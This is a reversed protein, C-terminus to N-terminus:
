PSSPADRAGCVKLGLENSARALESLKRQEDVAAQFFAEPDGALAPELLANAYDVTGSELKDLYEEWRREESRPPELQSLQDILVEGEAATAEWFPASAEIEEPTPGEPSFSPAEATALIRETADTCLADAETALESKSLTETPLSTTADVTPETEDDGGCGNLLALAAAALLATAARPLPSDRLPRM